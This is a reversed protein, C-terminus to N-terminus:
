IFDKHRAYDVFEGISLSDRAAIDNFFIATQFGQALSECRIVVGGCSIRRTIVQDGQRVPLSFHLKLKTMPAIFQHMLCLAGSRSLNKTETAIDGEGNSIKLPINQDLRPHRRREAAHPHSVM